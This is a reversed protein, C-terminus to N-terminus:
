FFFKRRIIKKIKIITFRFTYNNLKFNKPQSQTIKNAKKRLKSEVEKIDQQKNVGKLKLINEPYNQKQSM